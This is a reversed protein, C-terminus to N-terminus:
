LKRYKQFRSKPKDPITMEILGANLAPVLYRERFSKRDNLGLAQQLSERTMEGKLVEMLQKVQPTVHPTVQPAVAATSELIMTLMFEIFPASDCLDTSEQLANYYAQQHKHILSEVPIYEFLPNWRYLMVTQWLRGLRGNGDSFPHIFEFEYHFVSSSILPHLATDALWIFLNHMLRPVRDAPPAMHLLQNGAMVGVGGHRYIGADDALGDMLIRHADLLDSESDPYWKKFQDYAKNANAVERIEREPAIVKKGDLIATIQKESLTNGEIALSGQITQIRNIRHLRLKKEQDTLVSLRGAAEGTQAVLDIIAPTITYPPNNRFKGSM